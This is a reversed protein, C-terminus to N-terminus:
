RKGASSKEVAFDLQLGTVTQAAESKGARLTGGAFCFPEM